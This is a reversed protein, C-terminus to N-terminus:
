RPTLRLVCRFGITDLAAHDSRVTLHAADLRADVPAAGTLHEDTTRCHRGGLLVGMDRDRPVRECLEQVGRGLDRVGFRSVDLPDAGVRPPYRSAAPLPLEADGWPYRRLPARDTGSGGAAYLWEHETPLHKRAWRAFARAQALTVATVPRDDARREAHEPRRPADAPRALAKYNYFRENTVEFRDILFPQVEIVQGGREFTGGPVLVMEVSTGHESTLYVWETPPASADRSAVAPATGSEPGPSGPAAVARVGPPLRWGPPVGPASPREADPDAQPAAGSRVFVFQGSSGATRILHPDWEPMQRVEGRRLLRAFDGVVHDALDRATLLTGASRLAELLHWAFVSHGDRGGDAVAEWQGSGLLQYSPDQIARQVDLPLADVLVRRENIAGSFCSDSIVLVHRAAIRRLARLLTRSSLWTSWRDTAGFPVWFGEAHDTNRWQATGHGAYFVLLNDDWGLTTSLTELHDLIGERSAQEDELLTVHRADFHFCEVLLDRLARGDRQPTRLDPHHPAYKQVTVILAHYTGVDIQGREPTTVAVNTSGPQTPLVDIGREPSETQARLSGVALLAAAICAARSRGPRGRSGSSNSM